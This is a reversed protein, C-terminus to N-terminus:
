SRTKVRNHDGLQVPQPHVGNNWIYLSLWRCGESMRACMEHEIVGEIGDECQKVGSSSCEHGFAELDCMACSADAPSMLLGVLLLDTVVISIVFAYALLDRLIGKEQSAVSGEQTVPEWSKSVCTHDWSWCEFRRSTILCRSHWMGSLSFKM